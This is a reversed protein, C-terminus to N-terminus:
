KEFLKLLDDLYSNALDTGYLIEFDPKGKYYALTEKKAQKLLPILKNLKNEISDYSAVRSVIYKKLKPDETPLSAIYAEINFSNETLEREEKVLELFLEKLKTHKNKKNVLQLLEFIQQNYINYKDVNPNTEQLIIDQKVRLHSIKELLEKKSLGEWLQKYDIVKSKNSMKVPKYGASYKKYKQRGFAKPTNYNGGDSTLNM